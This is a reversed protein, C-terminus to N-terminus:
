NKIIMVVFRAKIRAKHGSEFKITVEGYIDEQIEIVKYTNLFCTKNKEIFGIHKVKIVSINDM